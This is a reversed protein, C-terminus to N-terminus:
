APKGANETKQGSEDLRRRECRPCSGPSSTLIRDFSLSGPGMFLVAIAMGFLAIQLFGTNLTERGLGSLADYWQTYALGETKSKVMGWMTLHFAVGMTIALGLSWFRTMLGILVLAGGGLETIMALWALTRPFPLEAGNLMMALGLLGRGKVTGIAPAAKAEIQDTGETPAPDDTVTAEGNEPETPNAKAWGLEVLTDAAPGEFDQEVWKGYGAWVFVFGLAIRLVLPGMTLGFHDRTRM